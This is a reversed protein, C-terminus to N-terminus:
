PPSWPAGPIMPAVQNWQLVAEIVREDSVESTSHTIALYSGTPVAAWCGRRSEGRRM